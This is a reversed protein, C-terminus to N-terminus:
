VRSWDDLADSILSFATAALVIMLGPFATLWWASQVFLRGQNIMLGWEPTPPAVGLGLFSLGSLLILALVADSALYVIVQPLANPLVHRLAVRPGGLGGVRAAHVYDMERIVLVQSRVLRAYAVWNIIAIAALFAGIGPGIIFVVVVMLVYSPFAQLLDGIRMVIADSLRGGYGALLGLLTGAIMPLLAAGMALPINLTTAALARVLVSRGLDDTGFPHQLSPPLLRQGLDQVVPDGTLNVIVGAILMAAIITVGISLKRSRVRRRRAGSFGPRGILQWVSQTNATM